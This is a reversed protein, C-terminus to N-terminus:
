DQLFPFSAWLKSNCYFNNEQWDKKKKFSVYLKELFFFYIYIISQSINKLGLQKDARM